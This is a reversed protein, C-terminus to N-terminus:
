NWGYIKITGSGINGSNFAFSVGTVTGTGGLWGGSMLDMELISSAITDCTSHWIKYLGSSGPGSVFLRCTVGNGASNPVAANGTLSMSAQTTGGSVGASGSINYGRWGYGSTQFSGGSQITMALTVNNTAPILGEVDIEYESYTNTLSTTDAQSAVSVPTLTNLLVKSASTGVQQGNAKIYFLVKWNGSGLNFAGLVDGAATTINSGNNPLILSTGNHTLTLAGTFTVLKLAGLPCASGFSTIGTTGTVSVYPQLSSCLNTSSASAISTVNGGNWAPSYVHNTADMYGVALWSTGDYVSITNPTTSTNLWCNGASPSGSLQNTPASNGSNCTNLANLASNYNNTLQLGSVTGTTPSQLTSQDAIAGTLEVM